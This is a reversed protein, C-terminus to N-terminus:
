AYQLSNPDTGNLIKYLSNVYTWIVNHSLIFNMNALCQIDEQPIIHKTKPWIIMLSGSQSLM